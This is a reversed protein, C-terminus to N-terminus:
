FPLLNIEDAQFGLATLTAHVDPPAFWQAYAKCDSPAFAPTFVFTTRRGDPLTLTVDWGGGTRISVVRHLGNDDEEDDAAPSEESGITVDHRQDDLQVDMSNLAFTWSYGFEASRPNLSNYTRTVTLPIGSVPLVLDQESFSFQGLKLNSELMRQTTGNLIQSNTM